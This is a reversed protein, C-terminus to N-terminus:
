KKYRFKNTDDVNLNKGGPILEVEKNPDVVDNTAFCLGLENANGKYSKLFKLNKYLEPDFGKLENLFNHKGLWKRIFFPSFMTGVLINDYLARGILIGIFRFIERYDDGIFTSANPNPYLQQDQETIKFLGYGPDFVIKSIDNLFEKFIGGGDVGKEQMGFEDVYFIRMRGKLNLKNTQFAQFGDEFIKDRRIIMNYSEYHKNKEEELLLLFLQLRYDFPIAFNIKSITFIKDFRNNFAEDMLSNIQDKSLLFEEKPIVNVKTNLEYIQSLLKAGHYNVFKHLPTKSKSNLDIFWEQKIIFQLLFRVFFRLRKKIFNDNLFDDIDSVFLLNNYGVIFITLINLFTREDQKKLGHTFIDEFGYFDDILSLCKGLLNEKLALTNSIRTITHHSDTNQYGLIILNSYIECTTFAIFPSFKDSLNIEKLEFASGFIKLTFDQNLLLLFQSRLNWLIKDDSFEYSLLRSFWNITVFNICLSILKLLAFNERIDFNPKKSISDYLEISNGLLFLFDTSESNNKGFKKLFIEVADEGLPDPVCSFVFGQFVSKWELNEEKLYFTVRPITLIYLVFNNLHEVYFNYAQSYFNKNSFREVVSIVEFSRFPFFAIKLIKIIMQDNQSQNKIISLNKQILTKILVYFNMKLYIQNHFDLFLEPSKESQSFYSKIKSLEYVSLLVDLSSQFRVFNREILEFLILIIKRMNLSVRIPLYLPNDIKTKILFEKSYFKSTKSLFESALFYDLMNDRNNVCNISDKLFIVISDVMSGYEENKNEKKNQCLYIFDRLIDQFKILPIAFENKKLIKKLNEIDSIRKKLITSISSIIHKRTIYGRYVKQIITAPKMKEKLKEKQKKEENMKKLFDKKSSLQSSFFNKDCDM